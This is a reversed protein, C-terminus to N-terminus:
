EYPIRKKNSVELVKIGWRDNDMDIRESVDKFLMKDEEAKYRAMEQMREHNKLQLYHKYFENSKPLKQYFPTKQHKLRELILIM